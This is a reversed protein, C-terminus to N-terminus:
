FLQWIPTFCVCLKSKRLNYDTEICFACQNIRISTPKKIGQRVVLPTGFIPPQGAACLLSNTFDTPSGIARALSSQSNLKWKVTLMVTTRDMSVGWVEVLGLNSGKISAVDYLARNKSVWSRKRPHPGQTRCQCQALFCVAMPSFLRWSRQFTLPGSM